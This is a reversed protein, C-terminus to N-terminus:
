GEQGSSDFCGGSAYTKSQLKALTRGEAELAVTIVSDHDLIPCQFNIQSDSVFSLPVTSGNVKVVIGGLSSPLPSENAAVPRNTTFGAGFISAWSGPSCFAESTVDATNRIVIQSAESSVAESLTTGQVADAVPSEQTVAHIAGNLPSWTSSAAAAATLPTNMDLQIENQTLARNYVRIEDLVGKFYFGGSRRGVNVNV